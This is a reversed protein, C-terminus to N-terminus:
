LDLRKGVFRARNKYGFEVLIRTPNAVVFFLLAVKVAGAKGKFSCVLTLISATPLSTKM